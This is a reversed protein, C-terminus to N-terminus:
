FSRCPPVGLDRLPRFVNDGGAVVIRPLDDVAMAVDALALVQRRFLDFDVAEMGFAPNLLSNPGSIVSTAPIVHHRYAQGEGGFNCQLPVHPGAPVDIGRLVLTNDLGRRRVAQIVADILVPSESVFWGVPEHEGSPVLVRGPGNIRPLPLYERAGLHELNEVFHVSGEDHEQAHDEAGLRSTYLHATAFVFKVPRPRCAEPLGAFYRALAIMGVPGNDWIANVGDTHSEFIVPETDSRGPLTAEVTRTRLQPRSALLTVRASVQGDHAPSDLFEREYDSAARAAFYAPTIYYAFAGFTATPISPVPLDRIVIRGAANDRTIEEGPPVYVLPASVGDRPTPATYPVPGALLISRSTGGARVVLSSLQPQWGTLEYPISRVQLGGIAALDSEIETLYRNHARGGTPRAGADYMEQNLQRIEAATPFTAPDAASPCAVAESTDLVALASGDGVGWAISGAALALALLLSAMGLGLRRVAGSGTPSGTQLLQSQIEPTQM